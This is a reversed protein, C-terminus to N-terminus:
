FYLPQVFYHFCKFILFLNIKIHIAGRGHFGAKHLERRVTKQPVQTKSITMLGQQLKRLLMRIIKGLLRRLPGATGILCSESEELTKSWHPPKGEKDFAIMVKSVTSKVVGFLEATKTVSAGTMRAGVIQCRKFDSLNAM